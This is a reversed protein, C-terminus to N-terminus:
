FGNNEHWPRIVGNAGVAQEWVCSGVSWGKISLTANRMGSQIVGSRRNLPRSEQNELEDLWTWTATGTCTSHVFSWRSSTEFPHERMDTGTSGTIRSLSILSFWQKEWSRSPSWSIGTSRQFSMVFDRIVWAYTADHTTSGHGARSRQVPFLKSM